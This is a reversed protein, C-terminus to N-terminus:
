TPRYESWTEEPRTECGEMSTQTPTWFGELAQIRARSSVSLLANHVTTGPPVISSTGDHGASWISCRLSLSLSLAPEWAGDHGIPLGLGGGGGVGGEGGLGLLVGWMAVWM